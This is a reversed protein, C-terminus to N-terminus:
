IEFRSLEDELSYDVEPADNPQKDHKMTLFARSSPLDVFKTQGHEDVAVATTVNSDFFTCHFDVTWRSNMTTFQRTDFLVLVQSTALRCPYSSGQLKVAVHAAAAGAIGIDEFERDTATQSASFPNVLMTRIRVRPELQFPVVLTGQRDAATGWADIRNVYMSQFTSGLGAATRIDSFTILTDSIADGNTKTFEMRVRRSYKTDEVYAPPSATGQRRGGRDKVRVYGVMTPGKEARVARRNLKASRNMILM